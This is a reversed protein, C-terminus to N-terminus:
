QFVEADSLDEFSHYVMAAALVGSLSHMESVTDSVMRENIGEVTVVMRGEENAAHVEVGPIALLQAEVADMHGPLASVMVGAINM